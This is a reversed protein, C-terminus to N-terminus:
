PRDRPLPLPNRPHLSSTTLAALTRPQAKASRRRRGTSSGSRAPHTARSSPRRPPPSPSIAPTAVTRSFARAQKCTGCRSRQDASASVVRRGDPTVACASVGSAHGELTVEARGSAVDWVKLTGDASRFVVRRGDPTVACASVWDAHGELTAEARGSALDWVKLTKDESASVVRRGDPTVVCASVGAAHGELAAEARGSALDWVKLTKDASASVVRRGDPTVACASVGNAHGELAAAARLRPLPNEGPEARTEDLGDVVIVLRGSAGLQKSVRGLLEPLRGEPRANDDRLAPFMAEIQAALSTAIREPQDWDIVQRRVFHHPVRAGAAERRALWTSLVASKGMGPGGTVVVWRTDDPGLLWQDLRALVDERGVFRLHREREITFDILEAAASARVERSGGV